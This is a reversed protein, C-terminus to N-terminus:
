HVLRNFRKIVCFVLLLSAKLANPPSLLPQVLGRVREDAFLTIQETILVIRGAFQM